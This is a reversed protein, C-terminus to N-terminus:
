TCIQIYMCLDLLYTKEQNSYVSPSIHHAYPWHKVNKHRCVCMCICVSVCKVIHWTQIRAQMCICIHIYLLAVQTARVVNPMGVLAYPWEQHMRARMYSFIVQYASVQQMASTTASNAVPHNQPWIRLDSWFVCMLPVAEVQYFHRARFFQKLKVFWFTNPGPNVALTMTSNWRFSTGVLPAFRRFGPPVWSPESACAVRGIRVELRHRRRGVLKKPAPARQRRAVKEQVRVTQRRRAAAGRQCTCVARELLAGKWSGRETCVCM